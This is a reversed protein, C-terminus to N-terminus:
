LKQELLDAFNNLIRCRQDVPYNQWTSSYMVLKELASTTIAQDAYHVKGV